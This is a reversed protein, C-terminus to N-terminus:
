TCYMSAPSINCSTDNNIDDDDDDNEADDNNIQKNEM